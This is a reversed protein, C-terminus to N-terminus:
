ETFTVRFTANEVNIDEHILEGSANRFAATGGTVAKTAMDRGQAQIEGLGDLEYSQQASGAIISEGSGDWIWGWCRFKGIPEAGEPAVGMEDLTGDPYLPGESYFPGTPIADGEAPERTLDFVIPVVEVTLWSHAKATGSQRIGAGAALAVGTGIALGLMRRRNINQGANTQVAPDLESTKDKVKTMSIEGKHAVIWVCIRTRVEGTQSPFDPALKTYEVV